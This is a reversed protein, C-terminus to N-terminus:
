EGVHYENTNLGELLKRTKSLTNIEAAELLDARLEKDDEIEEYFHDKGRAIQEGEFMISNGSKTVVEKDLLVELLGSYKDFGVDGYSPDFIVKTSYPSRPPAVKNKKTRFSIENGIREKNSGSGVTIQKKAYLGIRQSAFFQMAKGGPSTESEGSFMNNGVIDRIQNICILIAGSRAILPNRIRLMKYIAKARIGMEAKAEMQNQALAEETDLAALSDIVIVIPENNTLQERYLLISEKIFDSIKEVAVEQYLLLDDMDLGNLEGWKWDFAFEADILIAKGGLKQASRMFDLALLSKGSSYGGLLECVRGYPVGGGMVYNIVPSKCPLWIFSDPDVLIESASGAGKFKNLLKTESLAM